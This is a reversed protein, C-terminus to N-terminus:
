EISSHIDLLQKQKKTLTQIVLDYSTKVLNELLDEDIHQGEYISIWHRKNMHYGTHISEYIDRLMEGQEPQVKLNVFKKGHMSSTLLFMKNMVKYVPIDDGFPYSLDAKPLSAAINLAYRQIDDDTM